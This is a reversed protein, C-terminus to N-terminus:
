RAGAARWASLGAVARSGAAPLAALRANLWAAAPVEFRHHVLIALAFSALAVLAVLGGGVWPHALVFARPLAHGAVRLIPFHLMFVGLSYPALRAAPRTWAPPRFGSRHLAHVAAFFVYVVGMCALDPPMPGPMATLLLCAAAAALPLTAPLGPRTRALVLGFVFDPLCRAAGIGGDGARSLEGGTLVAGALFLLAVLVPGRWRGRDLIRTLLPLLLYCLFLASISWSPGNFDYPRAALGIGHTLTLHSLATGLSPRPGGAALAAAAVPLACFLFTALHLPYIRTLRALLFSGHPGSRPRLGLLYGSMIFFVDTFYHFRQTYLDFASGPVFLERGHVVIIGLCMTTRMLDILEIGNPRAPALGYQRLVM